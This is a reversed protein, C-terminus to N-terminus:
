AIRSLVSGMNCFLDWSNQSTTFSPSIRHIQGLYHTEGMKWGGDSVLKLGTVSSENNSELQEELRSEPLASNHDHEQQSFVWRQYVTCGM